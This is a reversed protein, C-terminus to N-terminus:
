DANASYHRRKFDLDSKYRIDESNWMRRIPVRALGVVGLNLKALANPM